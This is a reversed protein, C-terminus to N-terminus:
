GNDGFGIELWNGGRNVLTLTDDFNNLVRTAAGLKMNDAGDTFTLTVSATGAIVLVTGDAGGSITDINDAAGAEPAPVVASSTITLVDSAITPYTWNVQIWNGVRDDITTLSENMTVHKQAQSGSLLPLGLNPTDAM